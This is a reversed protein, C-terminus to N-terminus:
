VWSVRVEGRRYSDGGKNMAIGGKEMRVTCTCTCEYM